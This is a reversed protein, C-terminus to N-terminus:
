DTLREIVVGGNETITFTGASMQTTGGFDQYSLLPKVVGNVTANIYYAAFATSLTGGTITWSPNSALSFTTNLPYQSCYANGATTYSNVLNSVMTLTGSGGGSSIVANESTTGAGNSILVVDGNTFGTGSTVTVNKQASSANASLTSTVTSSQAYTNSLSCAQGGTTYGTASCEYSSIDAWRAHLASPTYSGTLLAVYIANSPYYTTDAVTNWNVMGQMLYQELANYNHGVM